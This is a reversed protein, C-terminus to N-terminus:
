LIVFPLSPAWHSILISGPRMCGPVQIHIVLHFLSLWSGLAFPFAILLAIGIKKFSVRCVALYLLCGIFIVVNLWIKSAFTLILGLALMLLVAITPNLRPKATSKM